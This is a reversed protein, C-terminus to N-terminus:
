LSLALDFKSSTILLNNVKISQVAMPPSLAHQPHFFTLLWLDSISVIWYWVQCLVGCPFTIFCLSVDFVLSGLHLDNRLLHGCPQLSCALFCSCSVYIVFVIYLLLVAMSRYTFIYAQSNFGNDFM